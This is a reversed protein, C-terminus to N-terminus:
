PPSLIGPELFEALPIRKKRSSRGGPTSPQRLKSTFVTYYNIVNGM